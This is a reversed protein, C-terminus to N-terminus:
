ATNGKFYGPWSTSRIQYILKIIADKNPPTFTEFTDIDRQKGYDDLLEDVLRNVDNELRHTM